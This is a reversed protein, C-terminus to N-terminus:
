SARAGSSSARRAADRRSEDGGLFQDGIEPRVADGGLDDREAFGGADRNLQGLARQRVFHDRGALRREFVDRPPHLIAQEIAREAGLEVHRRDVDGARGADDRGRLERIMWGPSTIIISQPTCNIFKPM